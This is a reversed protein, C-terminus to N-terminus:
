YVQCDCVKKIKGVNTNNLTTRLLACESDCFANM